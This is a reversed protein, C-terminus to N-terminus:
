KQYIKLLDNIYEDIKRKGENNLKGIKLTISKIYEDNITNKEVIENNVLMDIDINLFDCIQMITNISARNIGRELISVITTYPINSEKSFIRISKYKSLIFDKLKIEIENKESM